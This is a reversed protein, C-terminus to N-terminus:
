NFKTTLFTNIKLNTEDISLSQECTLNDLFQEISKITTNTNYKEKEITLINILKSIKKQIKYLEEKLKLNTLDNFLQSHQLSFLDCNVQTESKTLKIQVISTPDQNQKQFGKLLTLYTQAFGKKCATKLPSPSLSSLSINYKIFYDILINSTMHKGHKVATLLPSLTTSNYLLMKMDEDTFDTSHKKINLLLEQMDLPSINGKEIANILLDKAQFASLGKKLLIKFTENQGKQACLRLPCEHEIPTEPDMKLTDFCFAVISDSNSYIANLLIRHKSNQSIEKINFNNYLKTILDIDGITAATELIRNGNKFIFDAEKKTIETLIDSIFTWNKTQILHELASLGKSDCANSFLHSSTFNLLLKLCAHNNELISIIMPTQGHNNKFSQINTKLNEPNIKQLLTKLIAAHGFKCALHIPTNNQKDVCHALNIDPFKTLIQNITESDAAKILYHFLPPHQDSCFLVQNYTLNQFFQKKFLNSLKKINKYCFSILVYSNPTNNKISEILVKTISSKLETDLQLKSRDRSPEFNLITDVLNILLREYSTKDKSNIQQDSSYLEIYNESLIEFITRPLDIETSKNLARNDFINKFLTLNVNDQSQLQKCISQFMIKLFGRYSPDSNSGFLKSNIHAEFIIIPFHKTVENNTIIDLESKFNDIDMLRVASVSTILKAALTFPCISLQKKLPM